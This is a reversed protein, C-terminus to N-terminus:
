ANPMCKQGFGGLTCEQYAHWKHECPTSGMVKANSFCHKVPQPAHNANHDYLLLM